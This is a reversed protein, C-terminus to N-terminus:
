FGSVFDTLRKWEKKHTKSEYLVIIVNDTESLEHGRRNSQEEVCKFLIIIETKNGNGKDTFATFTFGIVGVYFMNCM